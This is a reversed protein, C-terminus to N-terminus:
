RISKSCLLLSEESEHLLVSRKGACFPLSRIFGLAQCYLSFARSLSFSISSFSFLYISKTRNTGKWDAMCRIYICTHEPRKAFMYPLAYVVGVTRASYLILDLLLKDRVRGFVFLYAKVTNFRSISGRLLVISVTSVHRDGSAKRAFCCLNRAKTSSFRGNELAFRCLDM